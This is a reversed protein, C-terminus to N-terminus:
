DPVKRRNYATWAEMEQACREAEALKEDNVGNARAFAIWTRVTAPALMDQARLVFIPEDPAAKELCPCRDKYAM